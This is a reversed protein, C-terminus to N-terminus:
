AVAAAELLRTLVRDSDLYAEALARAAAAHRPYDARLEDVAAAAGDTDAFTLLGEGTPLADGLGTDQAVAPRGSALYCCTRDSLWGCRAAVYGSKAVGLEAWSGAVFRRYAGPTAAVQGPSILQWGNATLAELDRREDPHIALALRVAPEIKRPLEIFRRVSHAKQGYLIGADEISGYGRWNAVTTLVQPVPDTSQPWEELVVPQLTRIWQRGCTPVACGDDGIAQGVTAFHTHGDLRMDIGLRDQWLQTFGPDLDLYIRVAADGLLETDRLMGAVNLVVDADRALRVLADYAPGVTRRTGEEVLAAREELGFRQAVSWFYRESPATLRSVPEVLLVDHGLRRLGLVYQLVAWTAGGQGPVGAVM